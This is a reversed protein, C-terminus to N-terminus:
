FILGNKRASEAFARVRGHFLYGARDFKIRGFGKGKAMKAFEEGLLSAGKVGGGYRMKDKVAKGNTSLSFLTRGTADDILQAYMNKNSRFVCLRPMEATGVIKRRLIKHRRERGKLKKM